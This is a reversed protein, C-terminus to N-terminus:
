KVCTYLCSQCWLRLPNTSPFQNRGYMLSRGRYRFIHALLIKSINLRKRVQALVELRVIRRSPSKMFQDHEELPICIAEIGPLLDDLLLGQIGTKEFCLSRIRDEGLEERKALLSDWSADCGFLDSLQRIAKLAAM